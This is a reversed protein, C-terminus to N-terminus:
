QRHRFLSSNRRGDHFTRRRDSRGCSIPIPVLKRFFVFNTIPTSVVFECTRITVYNQFIRLLYQAQFFIAFNAILRNMRPGSRLMNKFAISMRLNAFSDEELWKKAFRCVKKALTAFDLNCIPPNFKTM